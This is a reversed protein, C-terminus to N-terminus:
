AAGGFDTPTTSNTFTYTVVPRQRLRKNDALVVRLCPMCAPIEDKMETMPYILAGRQARVKTGDRKADAVENDWCVHQIKRRDAM